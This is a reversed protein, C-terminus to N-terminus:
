PSEQCSVGLVEVGAITGQAIASAIAEAASAAERDFSAIGHGGNVPDFSVTADDWGTEYLRDIIEEGSPATFSLDFSFVDM